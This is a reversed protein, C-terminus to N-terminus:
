RLAFPIPTRGAQGPQRMQQQQQQQEWRKRPSGPVVATRPPSVPADPVPVYQLQKLRGGAGGQGVGVGLDGGSGAGAGGVEVMEPVREMETEMMRGGGGGGTRRRSDYWSARPSGPPSMSMSGFGRGLVSGNSLPRNGPGPTGGGGSGDASYWSVRSRRREGNRNEGNRERDTAGMGMGSNKGNTMRSKATAATTASRGGDTRAGHTPTPTARERASEYATTAKASQSRDGSGSLASSPGPSPTRTGNTGNIRAGNAKPGLHPSMPVSHTQMTHSITPNTRDTRTLPNAFSPNNPTQHMAAAGNTPPSTPTPGRGQSQNDDYDDHPDHNDRDYGQDYHQGEEGYGNGYGNGYGGPDVFEGPYTAPYVYAVNQYGRPMQAEMAEMQAQDYAPYAPYAMGHQGHPGRGWGGGGAGPGADSDGEMLDLDRAQGAAAYWSNMMNMSAKAKMTMGDGGGGGEGGDGGEALQANMALRANMGAQVNRPHRQKYRYYRSRAGEEPLYDVAVRSATWPLDHLERFFATARDVYSTISHLESPANGGGFGGHRHAYTHASMKDFDSTPLPDLYVPSHPMPPERSGSPSAFRAHLANPNPNAIVNHNAATSGDLEHDPDQEQDQEQQHENSHSHSSHATQEASPRPEATITSRADESPRPRVPNITPRYPGEDVDPMIPGGTDVYTVQRGGYGSPAVSVPPPQLRPPKSKSNSHMQTQAQAQAAQAELDRDAQVGPAFQADVNAAPQRDFGMMKRFMGGFSRPRANNPPITGGTGGAPYTHLPSSSEAPDFSGPVPVDVTMHEAETPPASPQPSHSHHSRSDPIYGMNNLHDPDHVQIHVDDHQYEHDLNRDYDYDNNQDHANGYDFSSGAPMTNPGPGPGAGPHPYGIPKPEEYVDDYPTMEPPPIIRRPPWQSSSVWTATSQRGGQGQAQGLGQGLSQGPASSHSPRTNHTQYTQYTQQTQASARSRRPELPRPAPSPPTYENGTPYALYDAM